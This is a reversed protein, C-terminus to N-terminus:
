AVERGDPYATDKILSSKMLSSHYVELLIKSFSLVSIMRVWMSVYLYTPIYKSELTGNKGNQHIALNSSDQYFPILGGLSISHSLPICSSFIM